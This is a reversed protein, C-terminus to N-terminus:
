RGRTPRQRHRVQEIPRERPRRLAELDGLAETVWDLQEPGGVEAGSTGQTGSVDVLRIAAPLDGPGDGLPEVLRGQEPQSGRHAGQPGLEGAVVVGGLRQGGLSEPDGGVAALGVGGGELDDLLARHRSLAADVGTVHGRHELTARWNGWRSRIIEDLMATFWTSM